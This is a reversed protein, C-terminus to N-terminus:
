QQRRDPPIRNALLLWGVDSCVLLGMAVWFTELMREHNGADERPPQESNFVRAFRAFLYRGPACPGAPWGDVPLFGGTTL